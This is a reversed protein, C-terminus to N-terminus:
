KSEEKKENENKSFVASLLANSAFLSKHGEMSLGKIGSYPKIRESFLNADKLFHIFLGLWMGSIIKENKRKFFEFFKKLMINKTYIGKEELKMLLYYIFRISFEVTFGVLVSHTFINRHSGISFKLDTDPLGGEFDLGGGFIFMSITIIIFDVINEKKQEISLNSWTFKLKKYSEIILNKSDNFVKKIADKFNGLLVLKKIYKIFEFSFEIIFRIFSKLSGLWHKITAEFAELLSKLFIENIEEIKLYDLLKKMENKIEVNM